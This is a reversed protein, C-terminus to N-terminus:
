GSIVIFLHCLNGCKTLVALISGRRGELMEWLMYVPKAVCLLTRFCINQQVGHVLVKQIGHSNEESWIWINQKCIDIFYNIYFPFGLLVTFLAYLTNQRKDSWLKKIHCHSLGCIHHSKYSLMHFNQRRLDKQHRFKNRKCYTYSQVSLQYFRKKFSFVQLFHMPLNM